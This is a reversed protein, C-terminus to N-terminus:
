RVESRMQAILQWLSDVDAGEKDVDLCIDQMTRTLLLLAGISACIEEHTPM